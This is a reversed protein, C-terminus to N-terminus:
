ARAGRAAGPFRCIFTAGAGVESEVWVAGEHRQLIHKVIALGLGTGGLDRSRAKDVRYFREFLRAHHELPIGPGTDTVKLLVDTAASEWSVTIEGGAPTYKNANDLLNVLVQELRRADAWVSTADFSAHVRQSKADFRGQLQKLMRSTIEGTEVKSKHLIETSELASLDLLDGILSILRDTNRAITELFAPDFPRKARMDDILTDTYGKIATLPTRLEHSVNAVFDIRIQEASKLETVDHFVGVAGYVETSGKRLPSISLSFYRGPLTDIGIAAVSGSRGQGLAAAYADVVEPARFLERLRIDRRNLRDENGFILAFRSNYFLPRGEADVALIADSIASMLTALEEREVSLREAKFALDKRIDELSSRLESWEGYSAEDRSEALNPGSIGRAQALLDGVPSAMSRAVWAAAGTLVTGLLILIAALSRDFFRLVGLLKSIPVAVRVILGPNGEARTAGYLMDQRLTPSERESEGKGLKLAAAIEPRSAHNEMGRADHHSDCLVTGDASVLTFRMTTGEAKRRCWELGPSRPVEARVITLTDQLREHTQRNFEQEFFHRAAFGATLLGSLV